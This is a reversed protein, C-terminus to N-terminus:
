AVYISDTVKIVERRFEASHARLKERGLFEQAEVGIALVSMAILATLLKSPSVIKLMTTRERGQYHRTSSASEERWCSQLNSVLNENPRLSSTSCGDASM